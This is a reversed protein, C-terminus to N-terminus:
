NDLAGNMIWEELLKINCDSMKPQGYPMPLVGAEHKIAKLLKGNDVQAKVSAYSDYRIGGSQLGPGHCSICNAQLITTVKQSFKATTLDCNAGQGYVYEENSYYCAHLCIACGGLLLFRSIMKQVPM